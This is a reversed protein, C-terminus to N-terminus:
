EAQKLPTSGIVSEGAPTEIEIWLAADAPIPDPMEVHGHHYDFEPETKSVMTDGPDQAGVWMRVAKVEGGSVIKINFHGDEIEEEFMPQVAYPGIQVAAFNRMPIAEEASAPAGAAAPAAEAPAPAAAEPAAPQQGGCGTMLAGSVVLAALTRYHM